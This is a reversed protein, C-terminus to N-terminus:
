SLQAEAGPGRPSKYRAPIPAVEQDEDAPSNELQNRDEKADDEDCEKERM